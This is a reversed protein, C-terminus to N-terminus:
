EFRDILVIRPTRAGTRAVAVARKGGVTAVDFTGDDIRLPKGDFTVRPLQRVDIRGTTGSPVIVLWDTDYGDTGRGADRSCLLEQDQDADAGDDIFLCSPARESRSGVTVRVSGDPRLRIQENCSGDRRCEGLAAELLWDGHAGREVLSPPSHVAIPSSWPGLGGPVSADISRVRLLGSARTYSDETVTGPVPELDALLAGASRSTTLVSPPQRREPFRPSSLSGRAALDDALHERVSGDIRRTTPLLTRTGPVLAESGYVARDGLLEHRGDGTADPLPAPDVGPGGWGDSWPLQGPAGLEDLAPGIQKPPTAWGRSSLLFRGLADVLDETGDGDLDGALSGGDGGTDFEVYRLSGSPTSMFVFPLESGVLLDPRGDGNLDGVGLGGPAGALIEEQDIPLDGEVKGVTVGRAAPPSGAAAARTAEPTPAPGLTRGGVRGTADGRDLSSELDNAIAGAVTDPVGSSFLGEIGFYPDVRGALATRLMPLNRIGTWTRLADIRDRRCRVKATSSARGDRRVAFACRGGDIIRRDPDVALVVVRDVAYARDAESPAPRVITLRARGNPGAVAAFLRGRAYGDGRGGMSRHSPTSTTAFVVSGPPATVQLRIRKGSALRGGEARLGVKAAHPPVPVAPEVRLEGGSGVGNVVVKPASPSGAIEVERPAFGSPLVPRLSSVGNTTQVAVDVTAGAALEPLSFRDGVHAAGAPSWKSGGVMRWGAGVEDTATPVGTTGSIPPIPTSSSARQPDCASVVLAPRRLSMDLLAEAAEARRENVLTRLEAGLDAGSAQDATPCTTAAAILRLPTPRPQLTLASADVALAAPVVVAALLPRRVARRHSAAVSRLVLSVRSLTGLAGRLSSMPMM